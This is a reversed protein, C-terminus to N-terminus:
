VLLTCQPRFFHVSHVANEIESRVAPPLQRRDNACATFYAAVVRLGKVAAHKSEPLSSTDSVDKTTMEKSEGEEPEKLHNGNKHTPATDGENQFMDGEKREGNSTQADSESGVYPETLISALESLGSVGIAPNNVIDLSHVHLNGEGRILKPANEDDPVLSVPPLLAPFSPRVVKSTEEKLAEEAATM